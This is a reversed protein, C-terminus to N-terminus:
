APDESSYPDEEGRLDRYRRYFLEFVATVDSPGEISHRVRRLHRAHAVATEDHIANV